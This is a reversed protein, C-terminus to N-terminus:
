KALLEVLKELSKVKGASGSTVMRLCYGLVVFYDVAMCTAHLEMVLGRGWHM